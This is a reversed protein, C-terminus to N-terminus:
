DLTFPRTPAKAACGEMGAGKRYLRAEPDTTSEHTDNSRKEGRFDVEVNRGGASPPEDSALLLMARLLM